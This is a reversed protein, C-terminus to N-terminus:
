LERLREFDARDKAADRPDDRPSSKGRALTALAILPARVGGLERVDEAFTGEAWPILGVHLPICIRGGEDRVLYTLELRVAAREYGTGGDEDIEPAHRWGAAELLNVIRPVDDLWVALDVDFHPRTIEGAYFDVAWGGFLWHAIGTEALAGGVEALAALQASARDDSM